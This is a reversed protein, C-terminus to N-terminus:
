ALEAEDGRLLRRHSANTMTLTAWEDGSTDSLSVDIWFFAERTRLTKIGERERRGLGEIIEGM